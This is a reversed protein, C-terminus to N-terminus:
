IQLDQPLIINGTNALFGLTLLTAYLNIGSAWALGM